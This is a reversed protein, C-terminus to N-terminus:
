DLIPIYAVTIAIDVEGYLFLRLNVASGGVFWKTRKDDYSLFSPCYTCLVLESDISEIGYACWLRGRQATSPYQNLRSCTSARILAASVNIGYDTTCILIGRSSIFYRSLACFTCFLTRSRFLDEYINQKTISVDISTRMKKKM